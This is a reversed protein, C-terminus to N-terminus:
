TRALRKLTKEVGLLELIGDLSPANLSGTLIIRLPQGLQPMKLDHKQATDKIISMLMAAQWDQSALATFRKM